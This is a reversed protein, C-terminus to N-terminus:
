SEQRIFNTPIKIISTCINCRLYDEDKMHEMFLNIYPKCNQCRLIQNSGYIVTPFGQQITLGYPQIIVAFPIKVEMYLQKTRPFVRSTVRINNIANYQQYSELNILVEFDQKEIQQKLEQVQPHPYQQQQQQLFDLRGNKELIKRHVSM